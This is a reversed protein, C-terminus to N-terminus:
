SKPVFIKLADRYIGPHYFYVWPNTAPEEHLRIRYYDGEHAITVSQFVKQEDQWEAHSATRVQIKLSAAQADFLSTVNTPPDLISMDAVILQYFQAYKDPDVKIQNQKKADSDFYTFEIGDFVFLTLGGTKSNADNYNLSTALSPEILTNQVVYRGSPGYNSVLFIALIFACLIGSLMVLLLNRIQRKASSDSELAM